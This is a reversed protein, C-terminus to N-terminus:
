RLRQHSRSNLVLCRDLSNNRSAFRSRISRRASHIGRPQLQLSLSRDTKFQVAHWTSAQLSRKEDKLAPVGSALVKRDAFNRSARDENFDIREPLIIRVSLARDSGPIFHLNIVRIEKGSLVVM